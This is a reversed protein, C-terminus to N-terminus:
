DKSPMTIELPLKVTSVELVETTLVKAGFTRLSAAIREAEQLVNVDPTSTSFLFTKREERHPNDLEYAVKAKWYTVKAAKKEVDKYTV